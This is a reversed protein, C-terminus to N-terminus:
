GCCRSDADCFLRQADADHTRFRQGNGRLRDDYYNERNNNIIREQHFPSFEEHEPLSTILGTIEFIPGNRDRSGYVSDRSGAKHIKLPSGPVDLPKNRRYDLTSNLKVFIRTLSSTTWEADAQEAVDIPTRLPIRMTVTSGRGVDSRAELRFSGGFLAQLRWHLLALAHV